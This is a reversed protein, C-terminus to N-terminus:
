LAALAATTAADEAAAAAAAAAAERKVRKLGYDVRTTDQTHHKHFIRRSAASERIKRLCQSAPLSPNAIWWNHIWGIEEVTWIIRGTNKSYCQPHELGWDSYDLERAPLITLPVHSLPVPVSLLTVMETFPQEEMDEQQEEMDEQQQPVPNHQTTYQSSAPTYQPFANNAQTVDDNLNRHVYYSQTTALSHGNLNM